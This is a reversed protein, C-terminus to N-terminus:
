RGFPRTSFGMIAGVRCNQNQSSDKEPESRTIQTAVTKEDPSIDAASPDGHLEYRRLHRQPPAGEKASAISAASSFVMAITLALEATAIWHGQM